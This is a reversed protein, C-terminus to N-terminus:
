GERFTIARNLGFQTVFVFPLSIVKALVASSTLLVLAAAIVGLGVLWGVASVAAFSAFRMLLRDSVEFNFRANLAFSWVVAVAVAVTQAVLVSQDLAILLAFLGVDVVVASVGILGYLAAHRLEKRRREGAAPNM